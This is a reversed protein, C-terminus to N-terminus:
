TSRKLPLPLIATHMPVQQHAANAGAPSDTTGHESFIKLRTALLLAGAAAAAVTIFGPLYNGGTFQLGYGFSLPFIVGGLNGAAGVYGSIMGTSTPHVFPVAAMVAGCGAQVVMGALAVAALAIPLTSAFGLLLYAIVSGTLTSVILRKRGFKDALAGGLPRALLNSLGFIAASFGAHTLSLDFREMFYKPLFAVVCLETGFTAMYAVCLILANSDRWISYSTERPTRRFVRGAPVDSVGKWFFPAWLLMPLPALMLATRWGFEHALFPMALAALGSGANGLGGYIGGAFGVQNKPFWDATLRVGVVFGCGVLGVLLRLFFMSWFGQAFGLMMVPLTLVVLLATYTIRPGYLDVLKGILIRGPITLIVGATALWGLQANSLKLDHQILNALPAFSFWAFFTACFAIWSFHLIRWKSTQPYIKM